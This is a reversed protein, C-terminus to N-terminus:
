PAAAPASMPRVLHRLRARYLDGLREEHRELNGSIRGLLQATIPDTLQSAFQYTDLAGAQLNDLSRKALERDDVFQAEEQLIALPDFEPAQWTASQRLARLRRELVDVHNERTTAVERFAVKVEPDEAADEYQRFASLAYREGRLVIRLTDIIEQHSSGGWRSALQWLDPSHADPPPYTQGPILLDLRSLLTLTFQALDGPRRSTIINNDVVVSQDLYTAGANQLGKRIARDGTVHRGRLQDAEILLQPGCGIAAIAKGQAIADMLLCIARDRICLRMPAQGGPIVLADFDESRVEALSLDPKIHINGRVGKYEDDMWTGLVTIEADAQRLATFPIQFEVDEFHNEVLFAVRKKPTSGSNESGM